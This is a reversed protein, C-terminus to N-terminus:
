ARVADAFSYQFQPHWERELDLLEFLHWTPCYVDGPQFEDNAVNRIVGGSRAFTSVGPMYGTSADGFGLDKKFSNNASSVVPFRWSRSAAFARVTEPSEPMCVAFGARNRLHDVIGNFGDAWMACYSCDVGMNQVVILDSREGFLDSLRVASGDLDRFEYDDVPGIATERLLGVLEQRERILKRSLESIRAKVNKAANM